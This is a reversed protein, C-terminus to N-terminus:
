PHCGCGGGGGQCSKPSAPPASPASPASGKNKYDTEYFGKGKFIIGSGGGILRHLKFQGCKPCKRLKKDMMSQLIEFSHECSDCEYQYTSM